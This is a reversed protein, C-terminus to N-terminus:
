HAAATLQLGKKVGLDNTMGSPPLRAPVAAAGENCQQKQLTAPAPPPPVASM